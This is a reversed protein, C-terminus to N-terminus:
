PTSGNNILANVPRWSSSLKLFRVRDLEDWTLNIHQMLGIYPFLSGQRICLVGVDPKACLAAPLCVVMKPKRQM